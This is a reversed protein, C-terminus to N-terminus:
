IASITRLRLALITDFKAIEDPDSTQNTYGKKVRKKGYKKGINGPEASVV